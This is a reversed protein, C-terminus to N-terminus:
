WIPKQQNLPEAQKTARITQLSFFIIIFTTYNHQLYTHILYIDPNIMDLTM